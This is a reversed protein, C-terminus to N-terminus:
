IGYLICDAKFTWQRYEFLPGGNEYGVGRSYKLGIELTLEQIIEAFEEEQTQYDDMLPLCSEHERERHRSM